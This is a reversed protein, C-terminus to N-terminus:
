ERGVARVDVGDESSDVRDKMGVVSEEEKQRM